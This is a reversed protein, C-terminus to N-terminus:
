NNLQKKFTEITESSLPDVNYSTALLGSAWDALLIGNFLSEWKTKRGLSVSLVSINKEKLLKETLMMRKAIKKHENESAFIIVAFDKSFLTNDFGAIENHNLESFINTFAPIHATENLKLKWVAPISSYLSSSYLLPIKNKLFEGIREGEQQLAQPLINKSATQAQEFENEDIAGINHLTKMLAGLMNFLGLRPPIKIQEDLTILLNSKKSIKALEGGTTIAVADINKELAEQYCSLTEETNGSYSIAIVLTKSSIHKPLFYDRNVHLPKRLNGNRSIIAPLASGGMACVVIEEYEKKLVLNQAIKAGQEFANQQNQIIEEYTM